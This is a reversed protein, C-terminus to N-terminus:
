PQGMLSDVTALDEWVSEDALRFGDGFHEQLRYLFAEFSLDALAAAASFSIRHAHYLSAALFFSAAEDGFPGLVEDFEPKLYLRM